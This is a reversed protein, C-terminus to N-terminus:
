GHKIRMENTFPNIGDVYYSLLGTVALIAIGLLVFFTWFLIM